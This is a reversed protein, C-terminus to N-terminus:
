AHSINKRTGTGLTSRLHDAFHELVPTPLNPIKARDDWLRLRVAADAHSGARFAAVEGASFPGGQLALSQQSAPSLGAYYAADTACLYRKAPVHLRIPEVAEPGFRTSLWRAGLEEHRSDIGHDACDEGLDHVLHGIDHLLAATILASDTGEQEAFMAAQLAHETQSVPEGVYAADGRTRFLDFIEEVVEDIAQKQNSAAGM